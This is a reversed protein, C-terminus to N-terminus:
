GVVTVWQSAGWGSRFAGVVGRDSSGRAFLLRYGNGGLVRRRLSHGFCGFRASDDGGEGPRRRTHGRIQRPPRRSERGCIIDSDLARLM